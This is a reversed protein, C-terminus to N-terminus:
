KKCMGEPCPPCLPEGVYLRNFCEAIYTQKVGNVERTYLETGKKLVIFGKTMFDEGNAGQIEGVSLYDAKLNFKRLGEAELFKVEDGKYKKIINNMNDFSKPKYYKAEKKQFEGAHWDKVIKELDNYVSVDDAKPNKLIHPINRNNLFEQFKRKSIQNNAFAQVEDKAHVEESLFGLGLSTVAVGAALKGAAGLFSRRSLVENDNEKQTGPLIGARTAPHPPMGLFQKINMIYNDWM